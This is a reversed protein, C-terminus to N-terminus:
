WHRPRGDNDIYRLELLCVGGGSRGVGRKGGMDQWAQLIEDHLAQPLPTDIVWQRITSGTTSLQELNNTDLKSLLADIKDALGEHALFERYADATTAFGGPVMVGAKSLSSIMEGLSANKGGVRDIDHIGVQNFPVVYANM